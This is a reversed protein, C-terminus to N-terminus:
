QPRSKNGDKKNCKNARKGHGLEAVGHSPLHPRLLEMDIVDPPTALVVGELRRHYKTFKHSHGDEDAVIGIYRIGCEEAVRQNLSHYADMYDVVNEAFVVLNTPAGTVFVSSGIVHRVADEYEMM